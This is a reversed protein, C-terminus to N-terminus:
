QSIAITGSSSFPLPRSYPIDVTLSGEVRYNVHDPMGRRLLSSIQSASNLIDLEVSLVFQDSGRAPVTFSARTEGGAFREDDFMVRYNISKVPLPFVNPNEIEFGLLFTQGTFSVSDMQVRELDVKPASVLSATGSACGSLLGCLALGSVFYNRTLTTM